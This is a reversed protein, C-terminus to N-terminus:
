KYSLCHCRLNFKKLSGEMKEFNDCVWNSNAARKPEISNACPGACGANVSPLQEEELVLRVKMMMPDKRLFLGRGDGWVGNCQM